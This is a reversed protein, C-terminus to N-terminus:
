RCSGHGHKKETGLDREIGPLIVKVRTGRPERPELILRGGHGEIIRQSLALGLGMGEGRTTFFPEMLRSPPCPPLGCGNDEFVVEVSGSAGSRVAVLLTGGDPMAQRANELLNWFVQKMKEADVRVMLDRDELNLELGIGQVRLREGAVQLLERILSAAAIPVATLTVARTREVTQTVSHELRIIEELLPALVDQMAPSDKCRAILVQVLMKISTLPNRIEHALGAAVQGAAAFREAEVRRKESAVLRDMMVNFAEALRVIELGGRVDVRKEVRGEAIEEATLVLEELPATVTRVILRGVVGAAALGVAGILALSWLLNRHLSEHDALPRWMALAVDGHGPVTVPCWLARYTTSGVKVPTPRGSEFAALRRLAEHLEERHDPENLTGLILTGDKRFVLLEAQLVGGLQALVSPNLLFHSRALTQTVQVMQKELRSDRDRAILFAAAAWSVLSVCAMLLAFPGLIAARLSTNRGV